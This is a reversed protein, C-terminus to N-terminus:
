LPSPLEDILEFHHAFALIDARHKDMLSPPGSAKITYDARKCRDLREKELSLQREYVSALQMSWGIVNTPQGHLIGQGEFRLGNFGGQGETALMTNLLDVEDFQKKWRAVQAHPPIRPHTDHIPFTHVTLRIAQDGERIYFECISQTTDAISETPSPDQRIWHSPVLVRYIFPREHTRGEDRGAVLQWQTSPVPSSQSHCSSLASFILIFALSPKKRRMPFTM